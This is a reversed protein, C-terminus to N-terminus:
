KLPTKEPCLEKYIVHTNVISADMFYFFIRHWQHSKRDIQSSKKNQDFKDVCNM